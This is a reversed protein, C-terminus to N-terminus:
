QAAGSRTEDSRLATTVLGILETSLSVIHRNDFGNAKLEKFLSKAIIKLSRDQAHGPLAQSVITAM